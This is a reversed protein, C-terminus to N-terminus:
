RASGEQALPIRSPSPPRSRVKPLSPPSRRGLFDLAPKMFNTIGKDLALMELTSAIGLRDYVARIPAPNTTTKFRNDLHYGIFLPRPAILRPLAEEPFLTESSNMLLYLSNQLRLLNSSIGPALFGGLNATTRIRPDCAGLYMAMVGGVGVGLVNIKDPNAYPRRELYDLVRMTLGIEIGLLRMGLGLGSKDIRYASAGDTILCPILVLYGERALALGYALNPDRRGGIGLVREPTTKADYYVVVTSLPEQRGSPTAVLVEMQLGTSGITLLWRYFNAGDLGGIRQARALFTNQKKQLDDPIGLSEMLDQRYTSLSKTYDALSSLALGSWYASQRPGVRASYTEEYDRFQQKMRVQGPTPEFPAAKPSLREDVPREDAGEPTVAQGYARFPALSSPLLLFGILLLYRLLRYM